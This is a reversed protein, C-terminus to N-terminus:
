KNILGLRLAKWILAATNKVDLKLLLNNRYKKATYLSIFISESIEKDTMGEAILPLIEKERDTLKIKTTAIRNSRSELSEMKEQMAPEIFETGKYVAEIAKALMEKDTTKLLYGAAGQRLMASLYTPSDFNTLVLIKLKPFQKRIVPALEEGTMEPMQIDLLLVDPSVQELGQLLERGNHYTGVCKIHPFDSLM